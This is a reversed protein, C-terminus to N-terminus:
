IESIVGGVAAVFCGPQQTNYNSIDSNRTQIKNKEFYKELTLFSYM